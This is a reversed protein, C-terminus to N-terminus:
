VLTGWWEVFIIGRVFFMMVSVPTLCKQYSRPDERKRGEIRWYGRKIAITGSTTADQTCSMGSAEASVTTVTKLM